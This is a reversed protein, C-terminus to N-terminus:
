GLRERLTEMLRERISERRLIPGAHPLDILAEWIDALAPQIEAGGDHRRQEALLRLQIEVSKLVTQNEKQVDKDPEGDRRNLDEAIRRMANMKVIDVENYLNELREHFRVESQPSFAPPLDTTGTPVEGIPDVGPENGGGAEPDDIPMMEKCKPMKGDPAHRTAM